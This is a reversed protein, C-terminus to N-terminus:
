LHRQGIIILVHILITFGDIAFCGDLHRCQAVTAYAEEPRFAVEVIAHARKRLIELNHGDFGRNIVVASIDVVAVVFCHLGGELQSVSQVSFVIYSEDM